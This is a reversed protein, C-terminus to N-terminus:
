YHELRPRLVLGAEDLLEVDSGSFCTLRRHLEDLRRALTAADAGQRGLGRILEVTAVETPSLEFPGGGAPVPAAAIALYKRRFSEPSSLHFHLVAPGALFRQAEPGRSGKLFWGHVGAAAAGAAVAVASKGNHYGHFWPRPDTPAMALHAV